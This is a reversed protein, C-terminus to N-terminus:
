PIVPVLLHSDYKGGTHIIHYGKNRTIPGPMDPRLEQLMTHPSYGAVTLCLQQGAHWLMGTPRIPIDVPIIQGPSLLEEARHTHYPFWPTSRETDLQRHSVRLRGDPGMYHFPTKLPNGQADLKQILVFIDMDNAGDPEVWLRLSLYGTLETDENFKITFTVQGKGDDSTYRALSERGVPNPSLTGKDADLYLKQYQTRALPWENDPRNVQDTGGPDIISLRVRPTNEWGNEIGKLYRDFFHQLDELNEPAYYDPWEMTNHVRLWKDKSSLRRFGDITHHGGYSAVVYAPVTIEELKASKDDWYGNMLPYKNAMATMDEVRNRGIMCSTIVENFGTDSIGGRLVDCRYLDIHGEWPAIAALHPPHKSAAFWQIIGLWSNGSMAVKGNCWEQTALWEVTDYVDNAEATGWYYIDGESYFSGRADPNIVAYGHNCWYAPDPGEFKQLGSVADAPVGEPPMQPLQKGYPSWSIIAPLEASGTPRFVDTYITVGDRMTVGIDREWIIDCPLPIGKDILITGKALTTVGPKFEPKPANPFETTDGAATLPRTKRFIVKIKEGGFELVESSRQTQDTM